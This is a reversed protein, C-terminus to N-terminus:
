HNRHSFSLSCLALRAFLMHNELSKKVSLSHHLRLAFPLSDTRKLDFVPGPSAPPPPRDKDRQGVSCKYDGTVEQGLKM